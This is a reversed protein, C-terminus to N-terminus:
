RLDGYVTDVVGKYYGIGIDDYIPNLLTERHGKTSTLWNHVYISPDNCKDTSDGDLNEAGYVYHDYFTGNLRATTFGEHNDSHGDFKNVRDQAFNGLESVEKVPAVGVNSRESNIEILLENKNFICGASSKVNIQSHYFLGFGVLSIAVVSILAIYLKKM